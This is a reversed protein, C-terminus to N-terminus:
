KACMNSQSSRTPFHKRMYDVYEQPTGLFDFKSCSLERYYVSKGSDILCQYLPAVYEENNGRNGAYLQTYLELFVRNSHFGYLGVSCLDSIRQKEVVQCAVGTQQPDPEVFSWHDGQMSTVDIYNKLEDEPKIFDRYITDINFIVVKDTDDVARHCAEIGHRVTDAQGRTPANVPVTICNSVPLGIAKTWSRITEADIFQDLYIFCFGDEEFYRSFGKLSAQFLTLGNVDLYYKPKDYGASTFRSSLGAMPFYFM